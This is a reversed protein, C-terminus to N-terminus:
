LGSRIRADPSWGLLADLVFAAANHCALDRHTEADKQQEGDAFDSIGKVIMWKPNKKRSFALLGLGEMEGGVISPAIDHCCDYLEDRYAASRIRASGTLLCGPLVRYDKVTSRHSEMIALLQPSARYTTYEESETYDYKWHNASDVVDRRDYPFVSRSVLVDGYDQQTRSIGFAMGLCIVNTAGTLDLLRLGSAASGHYGVSGVRTKAAIVHEHGVRGIRYLPDEKRTKLRLTDFCLKRKVAAVRLQELEAPTAVLLLLSCPPVGSPDEVAM